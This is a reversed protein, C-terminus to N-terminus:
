ERQHALWITASASRTSKIPLWVPPRATIEEPLKVSNSALWFLPFGAFLLAALLVIAAPVRRLRRQFPSRTDLM